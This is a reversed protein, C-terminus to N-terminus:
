KRDDNANKGYFRACGLCLDIGFYRFFGSCAKLSFYEKFGKEKLFEEHYPLIIIHKEVLFMLLFDLHSPCNDAYKDDDAHNQQIRWDKM